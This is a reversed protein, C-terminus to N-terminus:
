RKQKAIQISKRFTTSIVISYYLNPQNNYIARKSGIKKVSSTPAWLDEETNEAKQKIDDDTCELNSSNAENANDKDKIKYFSTLKSIIRKTAASEKDKYSTECLRYVFLHQVSLM